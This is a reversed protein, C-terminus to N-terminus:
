DEEIEKFIISNDNKFVSDKICEVDDGIIVIDGIKVLREIEEVKDITLEYCVECFAVNGKVHVIYFEM